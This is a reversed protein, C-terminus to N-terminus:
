LYPKSLIKYTNPSYIIGEIRGKISEIKVIKYFNKELRNDAVLLVEDKNLLLTFKNQNKKDPSYIVAYTLRNKETILFNIDDISFLKKSQEDAIGLHLNVRNVSLLGGNIEVTDPHSAVIRMFRNDALVLDGNRFGNKNFKLLLVIENKKLVPQSDKVISVFEFFSFTILISAVILASGFVFFVFYFLGTNYKKLHLQKETYSKRAAHVASIVYSASAFFAAYVFYFLYSDDHNIGIYAALSLFPFVAAFLFAVAKSLEGNYMQGIGPIAASLFFSVFPNRKAIKRSVIIRSM